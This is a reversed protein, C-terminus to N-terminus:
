NGTISLYLAKNKKSLLASQKANLIGDFEEKYANIVTQKRVDSLEATSLFDNKRKLFKSMKEEQESTIDITKKVKKVIENSEISDSTEDKSKHKQAFTITSFLLFIFVIKKM